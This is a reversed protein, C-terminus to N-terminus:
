RSWSVQMSRSFDLIDNIIPLLAYRVQRTDTFTRSAPILARNEGSSSQWQGLVGEDAYPDEHSMNAPVRIERTPMEAKIILEQLKPSVSAQKPQSISYTSQNM